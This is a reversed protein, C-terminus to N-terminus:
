ISDNVRSPNKNLVEEIGEEYNDTETLLTHILCVVAATCPSKAIGICVCTCLRSVRSAGIPELASPQCASRGGRESGSIIVFEM